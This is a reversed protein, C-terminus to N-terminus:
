NMKLKIWAKFLFITGLAAVTSSVIGAIVNGYIWFGVSFLAGYVTFCGIVM